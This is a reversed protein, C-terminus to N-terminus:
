LKKLEEAKDKRKKVDEIFYEPSTSVETLWIDFTTSNFLLTFKNDEDCPVETGLESKEVKIPIIERLGGLTLGKWDLIAKKSWKRALVKRDVEEAKVHKKWVTRKSADSMRFMEEKGVFAVHVEFGEIQPYEIWTSVGKEVAVDILEQIKVGM